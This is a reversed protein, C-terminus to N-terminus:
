PTLKWAAGDVRIEYRDALKRVFAERQGARQEESLAAVLAARALELSQTRRPAHGQIRVLHWGYSSPIPGLWTQSPHAQVALEFVQKSFESGFLSRLQAQTKARFNSGKIFPDGRGPEEEGPQGLRRQIALLRQEAGDGSKAFIHQLDVTAPAQYREPHAGLEARLEAETYARAPAAPAQTEALYEMSQVLRRRVVPDSEHLGMAIAEHRLLEERVLDAILQHRQAASPAQGTKLQYGSILSEVQAHEIVLLRASPRAPTFAILCAALLGFHVLPEKLIQGLLKGM